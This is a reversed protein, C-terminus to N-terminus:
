PATYSEVMEIAPTLLTKANYTGTGDIVEILLLTNDSLHKWGYAYYIGNTDRLWALEYDGMKEGRSDSHYTGNQKLLELVASVTYLGSDTAKSKEQTVFNIARYGDNRMLPLYFYTAEGVTWGKPCTIRVADYISKIVYSGDGMDPDHTLIDVRLPADEPLQPVAQEGFRLETLSLRIDGMSFQIGEGASGLLTSLMPAFTEDLGEVSLDAQVPLFTETDVFLDVPIRMRSLDVEGLGFQKGVEAAAEEYDEAMTADITCSLRHATVGDTLAVEETLTFLSSDLGTQEAGEPAAALSNTELESRSWLDNAPDYIYLMPKGNEMLGYLEMTQTVGNATVEMDAYLSLPERSFRVDAAASLEAETVTGAVNMSFDTSMTVRFGSLPQEETAAETKQLVKEPTLGCATLAFLLTLLMPLFALRKIQKM